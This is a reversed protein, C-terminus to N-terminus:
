AKVLCHVTSPLLPTTYMMTRRYGQKESLDAVAVDPVYTQQVGLVLRGGPKLHGAAGAVIARLVSTGDTGGDWVQDGDFGHRETLRLALGVDRPVYPPNSVILDYHESVSSFLDSQWVTAHVENHRIAETSRDVRTQSVDVGHCELGPNRKALSILVLAAEGVGIELVRGRHPGWRKLARVLTVTTTDYGPPRGHPPVDVGFLMRITRPRRKVGNVADGFTRHAFALAGGSSNM